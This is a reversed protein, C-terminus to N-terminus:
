HRRETAITRSLGEQIEAARLHVQSAAIGMGATRASCAANVLILLSKKDKRVLAWLEAQWAPTTGLVAFSHQIKAIEKNMKSQKKAIGCKIQTCRNRKKEVDILADQAMEQEVAISDNDMKTEDIEVPVVPGISSAGFM